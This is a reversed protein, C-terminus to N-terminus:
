RENLWSRVRELIQHCATGNEWSGAKDRLFEECRRAYTGCDFGVIARSLEADDRASPFPLEDIDFYLARDNAVYDSRDSIYLCCPKRTLMFDFMLSSYDTILMDAALLLEQTDDYSSADYVFSRDFLGSFRGNRMHPHLRFLIVWDGGFRENVSQMLLEPDLRYALTGLGHRFTPAYLLIRKCKGIGFYERVGRDSPGSRFFIDCQPTGCQLYDGKYWFSRRFIQESRFSGVPLLDIQSSDRKAMKVYEPLLTKEADKEIMKLRLSSHWTQIYKQSRRKRFEATMRYNTIIVGATALTLYYAASGYRVTRVDPRRRVAPSFAWVIELEPAHVTFYESLYKPSGGYEAGYCSFFLITKRRVPLMRALAYVAKKVANKM